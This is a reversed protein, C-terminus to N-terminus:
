AAGRKKAVATTRDRVARLGPVDVKGDCGRVYANGATQNAQVLSLPARGAAIAKVVAGLDDYEARWPTYRVGVTKDKPVAREAVPTPAVSPLSLVQEAAEHDGADEYAAAEELRVDEEIKRAQEALRTEEERRLLEEHADYAALLKGVLARGETPPGLHEARKDCAAKHTEHAKKVLPDFTAKIEDILAACLEVHASAERYAVRRQDAPLTRYTALDPLTALKAAISHARAALQEPIALDTM